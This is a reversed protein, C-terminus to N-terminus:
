YKSLEEDKSFKLTCQKSHSNNHSSLVQQRNGRHYIRTRKVTCVCELVVEISKIIQNM